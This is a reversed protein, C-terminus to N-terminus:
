RRLAIVLDSLEWKRNVFKAVCEYLKQQRVASLVQVAAHLEKRAAEVRPPVKTVGGAGVGAGGGPQDRRQARAEGCYMCTRVRGPPLPVETQVEGCNGCKWDGSPGRPGSRGGGAIDTHM